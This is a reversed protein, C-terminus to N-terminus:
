HFEMKNQKPNTVLKTKIKIISLYNPKMYIMPNNRGVWFTINKWENNYNFPTEPKLPFSYDHAYVQKVINNNNNNYINKLDTLNSFANPEIEKFNISHPM